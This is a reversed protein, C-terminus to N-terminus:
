SDECGPVNLNLYFKQKDGKSRVVQYMKLNFSKWLKQNVTNRDRLLEFESKLLYFLLTPASKIYAFHMPTKTLWSEKRLLEGRM